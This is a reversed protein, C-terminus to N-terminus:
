RIILILGRCKLGFIKVSNCVHVLFIACSMIFLPLAGFREMPMLFQLFATMAKAGCKGIRLPWSVLEVFVIIGISVVSGFPVKGNVVLGFCEGLDKIFKDLHV